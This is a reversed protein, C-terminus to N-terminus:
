VVSKRDTPYQELMGLLSVAAEGRRQEEGALASLLKPDFGESALRDFAAADAPTLSPPNNQHDTM